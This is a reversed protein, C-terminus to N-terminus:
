QATSPGAGAKLLKDAALDIAQEIRKRYDSNEEPFNVFKLNDYDFQELVEFPRGNVTGALRLEFADGKVDKPANFPPVVQGHTIGATVAALGLSRTRAVSGDCYEVTEFKSITVRTEGAGPALKTELVERLYATKSPVIFDDGYSRFCHPRGAVHAEREEEGRLDILRITRPQYAGKPPELTIRQHTACSALLCCALATVMCGKM